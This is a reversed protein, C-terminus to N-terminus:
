VRSQYDLFETLPTTYQSKKRGSLLPVCSRCLGSTSSRQRLSRLALCSSSLWKRRRRLIDYSSFCTHQSHYKLTPSKINAPVSKCHSFLYRAQSDL